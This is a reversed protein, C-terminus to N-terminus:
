FALGAPIGEAQAGLRKLGPDLWGELDDMSLRVQGASDVVECRARLQTDAWGALLEVAITFEGRLLLDGYREMRGLGAPLCGADRYRRTWAFIMQMSADFIGPDFIWAMGEAPPYFAEPRTAVVKAVIWNRSMVSIERLTQFRPGHFLWKRYLDAADVPSRDTPISLRQTPPAQPTGFEARVRYAPRPVPRTSAIRVLASSGDADPENTIEIEISDERLALGGLLRMDTLARVPRGDIMTAAEAMYEAACAFPVVPVGDLRHDDLYRDSGLDITKCLTSHGRNPAYVVGATLLPQAPGALPIEGGSRKAAAPECGPPHGDIVIEAEAHTTRDGDHGRGPREHPASTPVTAQPLPGVFPSPGRDTGNLFTIM